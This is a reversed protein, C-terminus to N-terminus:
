EADGGDWGTFGTEAGSFGRQMLILIQNPSEKIPPAIASTATM